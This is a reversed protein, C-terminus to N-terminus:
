QDQTEVDGVSFDWVVAEGSRAVLVSDGPMALLFRRAEEATAEVVNSEHSRWLSSLDLILDMRPMVRHEGVLEFGEIGALAMGTRRCAEVFELATSRDYLVLGGHRISRGAFLLHVAEERPTM